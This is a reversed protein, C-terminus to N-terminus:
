TRNMRVSRYQVQPEGKVLGAGNHEAVAMRRKVSEYMWKDIEGEITIVVVRSAQRYTPVPADDAHAPSVGLAM